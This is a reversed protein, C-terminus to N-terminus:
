RYEFSWDAVERHCCYESFVRDFLSMGGNGDEMLSM